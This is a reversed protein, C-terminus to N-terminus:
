NTIKELEKILNNAIDYIASTIREYEFIKGTYPINELLYGELEERWTMEYRKDFAEIGTLPLNDPLIDLTEKSICGYKILLNNIQTYGEYLIGGDSPNAFFQKLEWTTNTRPNTVKGNEKDYIFEKTLFEEIFYHDLYLHTYIGLRISSDRDFIERRVKELDPVMFGEMHSNIRYHTYKKNETTVLDPILNGSFFDVKNLKIKTRRYVEEAFVLHFIMGPM